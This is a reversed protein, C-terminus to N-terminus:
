SFDIDELAHVFARGVLVYKVSRVVTFDLRREAVPFHSGIEEAVDARRATLIVTSATERVMIGIGIAVLKINKSPSDKRMKPITAPNLDPPERPTSNRTIDLRLLRVRRCPARRGGQERRRITIHRRM